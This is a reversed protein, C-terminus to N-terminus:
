FNHVCIFRKDCLMKLLGKDGLMEATITEGYKSRKLLSFVNEDIEVLANSLTNYIFHRRRYAWLFTYPSVIM